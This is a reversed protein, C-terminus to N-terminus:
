IRRARQLRQRLAEISIQLDDAIAQDAESAKLGSEILLRKARKITEAFEHHEGDRGIMAFSHDDSPSTLTM